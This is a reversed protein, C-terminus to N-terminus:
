KNFGKQCLWTDFFKDSNWALYSIVKQPKKLTSNHEVIFGRRKCAELKSLNLEVYWGNNRM